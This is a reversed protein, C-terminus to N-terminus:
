LAFLKEIAVVGVVEGEEDTVAAFSQRKEQLTLFAKEISTGKQLFIPSRLYKKFGTADDTEFLIDFVYIMGVILTPLEESVLVMRVNTRKAIDKVKGITDTIDVKEAKDVPIMVSEVKIREFDMITDILRKEHDALIGSKTSEEILARFEKESVFISRDLASGLSGMFFTIVRDIFRVPIRCVAMLLNLVDAFQLLFHQAHLRSYDKPMTECAIISLPAMIITVLWENTLGLYAGFGYALISTSAINFINTAILIITLLQHPDEYLKLIKQAALSGSDAMERIKIRNASVFAMEAASFFAYSVLCFFFTVILTMPAAERRRQPYL